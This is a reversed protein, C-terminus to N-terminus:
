PVTANRHQRRSGIPEAPPLQRLEIHRFSVDGQGNNRIDVYLSSTDDPCIAALRVQHWAGDAAVPVTGYDDPWISLWAGSAGACILFARANGAILTSRVEFTLTYLHRPRAEVTRVARVEGDGDGELTLTRAGDEGADFRVGNAPLSWGSADSTTGAFSGNIEIPAGLEVTPRAYLDLYLVDRHARHLVREYGREALQERVAAATPTEIYAIWLAPPAGDGDLLQRPLEWGDDVAVHQGALAEPAYLAILTEAITPVTVVPFGFAAATETGHALERWHQKDGQYVARITLLSMALIFALSLMTAGRLWTPQRASAAAGLLLAWGLVAPLVTREAYAPSILSVGAAALVTGVLLGLTVMGALPPRRRLVLLGGAVAPAGALLLLARSLPWVDWAANDGWLYSRNLGVLALASDRLAPWSVGLYWDRESGIREASELLEPLWPLFGSGAALLAAPLALSRPERRDVCLALVAVQPALAFIASYDVYLALLVSASYLVAWRTRLSGVYAVIGLYSLAVLLTVLAYQRAEQSYWLHLPSVALMLSAVIAARRDLLRVALAYLVPITLTGAVISVLRGAYLDPVVLAVFKVVAYYLPPHFDYAGDLGIATKWPLRSYYVTFGEDLWLSLRDVRAVRMVAGALVVVCVLAPASSVRTIRGAGTVQSETETGTVV